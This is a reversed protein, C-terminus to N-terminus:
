QLGDGNGATNTPKTLIDYLDNGIGTSAEQGHGLAALATAMIEKDSDTFDPTKAEGRPAKVTIGAMTIAADLGDVQTIPQCTVRGSLRVTKKKSKDIVGNDKVYVQVSLESKAAVEVPEASKDIVYIPTGDAHTEFYKSLGTMKVTISSKGVLARGKSDKTRKSIYAGIDTVGAVEQIKTAYDRVLIGALAFKDKKVYVVSNAAAKDSIKYGAITPRAKENIYMPTKGNTEILQKMKEYNAANDKCEEDPVLCDAYGAFTAKFKDSVKVTIETGAAFREAPRPKSTLVDTIAAGKSRTVGETFMRKAAAAAAKSEAATPAESETTAPATETATPAPANSGTPAYTDFYKLVVASASNADTADVKAPAPVSELITNATAVVQDPAFISKSAMKTALDATVESANTFTFAM